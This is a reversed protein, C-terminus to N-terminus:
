TLLLRSLYDVEKLYNDTEFLHTQMGLQRASQINDALDDILMIENAELGTKEIALEYIKPDPKALGVEFSKIKVEYNAVPYMGSITQAKDWVIKTVNTLLGLRYYQNLKVVLDHMEKIPVFKDVWHGDAYFNAPFALNFRKKLELEVEVETVKGEALAPQFSKLVALYEPLPIGLDTAILQRVHEFHLLVGGVDFYIFKPKIMKAQAPSPLRVRTM